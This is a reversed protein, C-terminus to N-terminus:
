APIDECIARTRAVLDDVSTVGDVAVLLLSNRLRERSLESTASLEELAAALIKLDENQARLVPKVGEMCCRVGKLNKPRICTRKVEPRPSCATFSSGQPPSFERLCCSLAADVGWHALRNKLDHHVDLDRVDGIDREAVFDFIAREDDVLRFSCGDPHDEGAKNLYARRRRYGAREGRLAHPCAFTPEDILTRYLNSLLRTYM